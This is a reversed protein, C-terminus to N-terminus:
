TGASPKVPESADAPRAWGRGNPAELQPQDTNQVYPALTANWQDLRKKLSEAIEKRSALFNESEGPDAALNALHPRYHSSDGDNEEMYRWPGSRVAQVGYNSVQWNWYLAAHPDGQKEGRIYPILNVGDLHAPADKHGSVAAATAYIDLTSVLGDYTMGAPLHATWRVFFPEHVGGDWGGAKGGRYPANRASDPLWGGNDGTFFVLTREDLGADHLKTLLKGVVDDLAVLTAALYRRPAMIQPSIRDVYKQPVEEVPAHVALPAFYLFFPEDRHRDVFDVLEDAHLETAYSGDDGVYHPAEQGPKLRQRRAVELFGRQLPGQGVDGIDWRGVMGTVYGADRMYEALTPIDKPIPQGRDRNSYIGYRQPYTGLMLGTRSPSCIPCLTYGNTFRVGDAALSDINPTRFDPCGCASIDGYGLDDVLIVVINPRDSAAVRAANGAVTIVVLLCFTTFQDTSMQM